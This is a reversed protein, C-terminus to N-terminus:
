RHTLLQMCLIYLVCAQQRCPKLCAHQWCPKLCAHQWSPKLCTYSVVVLFWNIKNIENFLFLVFYTPFCTSRM